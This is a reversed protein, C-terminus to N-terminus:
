GPKPQTEPEDGSQHQDARSEPSDTAVVVPSSEDVEQRRAEEKEKEKEAVVRKKLSEVYPYGYIEEYADRFEASDRFGRFLPWEHYSVEKVLEGERGIRLMTSKAEDFRDCLVLEALRFEPLSASWDYRSLSQIAGQMSGKAKIAIARNVAIMRRSLETRVNPLGEAFDCVMIARDWQESVLADYSVGVLEDDAAEHENEFNKRWLTQGLKLGVEILLECSGLLYPQTLNVKNGIPEIESCDVGAAKCAKRYQDSVVGDCHTLLNRRQAREVFLPWSAFLRLKVGFAAELHEFQETYSKRRLSEIEDDLLNRKIDEISEAEFIESTSVSRNLRRFLVPKKRYISGVLDGMFADFVSFLTLFLSRMLLDPPSSLRLRESDRMAAKAIKIGQVSEASNESALLRESEELREIAEQLKTSVLKNTAPVFARAFWKIDRVQHIYRQIAEAIPETKSSKTKESVSDASIEDM